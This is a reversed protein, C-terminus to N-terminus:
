RYEDIQKAANIFKNKSEPIDHMGPLIRGSMYDAPVPM